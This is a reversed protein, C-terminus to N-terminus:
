GDNNWGDLLSHRNKVLLLKDLSRIAMLVINM